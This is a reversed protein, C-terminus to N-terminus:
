LLACETMERSDLRDQFNESMYIKFIKKAVTSKTVVGPQELMERKDKSIGHMLMAVELKYDYFSMCIMWLLANSTFLDVPRYKKPRMKSDYNDPDTYFNLATSFKATLSNLENM